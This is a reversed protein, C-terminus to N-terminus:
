FSYLITPCILTLSLILGFISEKFSKDNRIEIKCKFFYSVISIIILFLEINRMERNESFLFFMLWLILSSIGALGLFLRRNQTRESM